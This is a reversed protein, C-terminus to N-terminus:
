HKIPLNTPDFAVLWVTFVALGFGCMTRLSPPTGGICIKEVIAAVVPVLAVCTTITAMSAGKLGYAGMYALDGIVFLAGILLLWLLASGEPFPVPHGSANVVRGLLLTTIGVFLAYVPVIAFPSLTSLKHAIIVNTSAFIIVAVLALLISGM